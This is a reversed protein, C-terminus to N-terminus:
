VVTEDIMPILNIKEGGPHLGFAKVRIGKAFLCLPKSIQLPYPLLVSGFNRCRCWFDTAQNGDLASGQLGLYIVDRARAHPNTLQQDRAVDNRTVDNNM